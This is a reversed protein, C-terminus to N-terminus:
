EHVWSIHINKRMELIRDWGYRDWGIGVRIWGWASLGRIVAIGIGIYMNGM